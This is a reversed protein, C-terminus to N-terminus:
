VTLGSLTFLPSDIDGSFNQGEWTMSVVIEQPSQSDRNWSVSRLLMNTFVGDANTITAFADATYKQSEITKKVRSLFDTTDILDGNCLIPRVWGNITLVDANTRSTSTTQRGIPSPSANSEQGMTIEYATEYGGQGEVLINLNSDTQILNQLRNQM